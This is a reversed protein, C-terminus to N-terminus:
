QTRGASSTRRQQAPAAPPSDAGVGGLPHMGSLATACYRKFNRYVEQEVFIEVTVIARAQSGAVLRAPGTDDRLEDFEEAVEVSWLKELNTSGGCKGLALHQPSAIASWVQQLLDAHHARNWRIEHSASGWYPGQHRM